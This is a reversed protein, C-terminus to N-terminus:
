AGQWENLHTDSDTKDINPFMKLGCKGIMTFNITQKHTKRKLIFSGLLQKM